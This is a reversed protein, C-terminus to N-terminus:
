LTMAEDLSTVLKKGFALWKFATSAALNSPDIKLKVAAGKKFNFGGPRSILFSVITSLDPEHGVLVMEDVSRYDDLLKELAQMDFGPKLEDRVMFPGSYALTEALIDATQVARLLPSTLILGPEVGNKLMTRATKRFLARGEPTLYRTVESIDPSREVAAAHRVVLLKM